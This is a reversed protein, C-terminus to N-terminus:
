KKTLLLLAMGNNLEKHCSSNPFLANENIICILVNTYACVLIYMHVYRCLRKRTCCKSSAGHAFTSKDAQYTSMAHIYVVVIRWMQVREFQTIHHTSLWAFTPKFLSIHHTIIRSCTLITTHSIHVPAYFIRSHKWLNQTHTACKQAMKGSDCCCCCCIKFVRVNLM